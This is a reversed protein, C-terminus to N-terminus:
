GGSRQDLSADPSTEAGDVRRIMCNYKRFAAPMHWRGTFGAHLVFADGPRFIATHGHRDTVEVSGEIVVCFETFPLDTIQLTGADCGWVGASLEPLSVVHAVHAFPHGAGELPHDSPEHAVATLGLRPDGDAHIPTFDANAMITRDGRRRSRLPVILM